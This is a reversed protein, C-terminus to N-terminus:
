VAFHSLERDLECKESTGSFEPFLRYISRRDRADMEVLQKEDIMKAIVKESLLGPQLESGHPFQKEGIQLHRLLVLTPKM